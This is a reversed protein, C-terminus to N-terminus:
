HSSPRDTEMIGIENSAKQMEAEAYAALIRLMMDNREPEESMLGRKIEMMLASAKEDMGDVGCDSNLTGDASQIISRVALLKM